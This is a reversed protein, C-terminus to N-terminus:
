ASKAAKLKAREARLLEARKIRKAREREALLVDARDACYQDCVDGDCRRGCGACPTLDDEDLYM